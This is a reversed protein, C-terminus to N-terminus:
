LFKVATDEGIKFVEAKNAKQLSNLVIRMFNLPVGYFEQNRTEDGTCIGELTEVSGIKGTSDAWKYVKEAWSAPSKWFMLFSSGERVASGQNGMFEFLTEKFEENLARNIQPRQTIESFDEPTANYMKHKRAYELIVQSWLELQQKKTDSNPQLTYFPPWLLFQEISADM